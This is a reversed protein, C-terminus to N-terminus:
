VAQWVHVNGDEGASTICQGDPSWAVTRISGGHYDYVFVRQKQSIGKHKRYRADWVQVTQDDGASAIYRGDPSWTVARVSRSHGRYTFVERNAAIDWIQVTHDSSALAIYKSDPSCAVAHVVSSSRRYTFITNNTHMNWVRATHDISTSAIHLSDPLWAVVEVVDSHRHFIAITDKTDADWVRVTNDNGGSAIYRGDPSWAVTQIASEHGEYVFYKFGVRLALARLWQPGTTADWVQVTQDQSASAIRQGDPSWAVGSVIANHNHYTFSNNGSLADWVQVTRDDGASAIRQGNPSWAVKRVRDRHGRYIYLTVGQITFSVPPTSQTHPVSQAHLGGPQSVGAKATKQQAAIRQLEKKVDAMTAPRKGVDVELMRMVVTDLEIPITRDLVHLSVFHFPTVSPDIGILLQYLTAGLGYIDSQPTTQAKGYQEPAAFGPSGLATTDKTKGPKFYRAIGFDILYLNGGPALMINTPKVDRFIIPPQHNHLYDLVSCLQIGLDVVQMLPLCAGPAKIRYEELTEGEIFDMVVYWHEPDTFQGYIRPIHPHKLDSLLMVERNFVDTAEIIQQSTLGGLGIEKVAVLRNNRQIDEAKYVAGFGGTGVQNLIRYRGELLHDPKLYVMNSIVVAESEPPLPTTIKLSLGCGPCSVSSSLNDRGCNPCYVNGPLM